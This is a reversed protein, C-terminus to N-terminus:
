PYVVPQAQPHYASVALINLAFILPSFFQAILNKIFHM